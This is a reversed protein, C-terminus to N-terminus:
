STLSLIDDISLEPQLACNISLAALASARDILLDIERPTVIMSAGRPSVSQRLDDWAKEDEPEMLDAALTAADVVTPVGIAIVPVGLTKQDISPRANAIGSGPSIGSNGIQITCGLRNLRRSALADVVIVAVPKVREVIGLLLEAVEIGTQGLVGPALAAVPRLGTFGASRAFEGTIHRTALIRSLTQPGLADPTINHNGLGCVLVLGQKPLMEDLEDAILEPWKDNGPVNDTLPPLEITIYRGVPKGLKKVGAENQVDIITIQADDARKETVLVGDIQGTEAERLELALDTRFYM